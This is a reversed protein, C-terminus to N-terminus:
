PKPSAPKPPRAAVVILRDEGLSKQAFVRVEEASAVKPEVGRWAAVLRTRPDLNSALHSATARELDASALGNQRIRDMLARTQQVAQDLSSQPSALRIVLAPARPAGM